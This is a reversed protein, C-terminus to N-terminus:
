AAGPVADFEGKLFVPPLQLDVAVEHPDETPADGPGPWQAAAAALVDGVGGVQDEDVEGVGRRVEADGRRIRGGPLDPPPTVPPVAEGGPGTLMGCTVAAM